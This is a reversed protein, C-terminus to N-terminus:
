QTCLHFLILSALIKAKVCIENHRLYAIDVMLNNRVQPSALNTKQRHEVAACPANLDDSSRSLVVSSRSLVV